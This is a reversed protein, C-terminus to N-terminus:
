DRDFFLFFAMLAMVGLLVTFGGMFALAVPTPHNRVALGLPVQLIFVTFFAYRIAKNLNACRFEDKMVALVDPDEKTFGKGKLSAQLAAVAIPLGIPLFKLLNNSMATFTGEADFVQLALCIGLVGLWALGM